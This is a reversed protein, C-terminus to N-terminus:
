EKEKLSVMIGQQGSIKNDLMDTWIDACADAGEHFELDLQDQLQMVLEASAAYGQQMLVGTGWDKNRKDIQAPTFFFTPASGPLSEKTRASDWHTAGVIQSTKMNDGLHHHLRSRVPGNGAMDVFATPINDLSELTDYTLIQECMGLNEVFGVNQESTLGVLKGQYDKAKIFAALGYGTKSSVSGIVIQEANFWDNDLLFDAIVYGTMFLPFFVCRADEFAELEAPEAKTRSYQNYLAPLDQRHATVDMFHADKVRGPTMKLHTSMPFFGYIREGTEIGDCRSEVVDAMGWVTVKGWPNDETPFYNWYGIANGSVAYGVNNATIAFKDIAVLIDGDDLNPLPLKVVKSKRLDTKDVWLESATM